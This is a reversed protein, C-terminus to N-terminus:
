PQAHNSAAAVHQGRFYANISSILSMGMAARAEFTSSGFHPTMFLNPLDFYRQDINPEGAFVDLGAAFISKNRLAHILDDDIVLDGRAINVLMFSPKALALTEARIFGRTQDTSPAALLLVDAQAVLDLPREIYHAAEAAIPRRNHYAISMGCARARKAVARGIEGMGYIGLIRGSLEYGLLQNPTWGTWRGSRVLAIQETGRRATGLILFMAADAVSDILAGPTNCVAIGRARAAALDIHETGVSYTAIMKISDPLRMIEAASLTQSGFGSLIVDFTQGDRNLLALRDLGDVSGGYVFDFADKMLAEVHPPLEVLSFIRTSKVTVKFGRSAM